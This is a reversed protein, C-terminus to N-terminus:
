DYFQNMRLILDAVDYIVLYEGGAKKFAREFAKQNESKKWGKDKMELGILIGGVLVYVDPSGVMGFRIFGGWETKMAGTNNRWHFINRLTLYDLCQKLLQSEKLPPPYVRM